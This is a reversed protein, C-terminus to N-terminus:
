LRLRQLKIALSRDSVSVTHWGYTGCLERIQKSFPHIKFPIAFPDINLVISEPSAFDEQILDLDIDISRLLIGLQARKDGSECRFISKQILTPKASLVIKNM